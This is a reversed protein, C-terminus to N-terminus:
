DVLVGESSAERVAAADRHREGPVRAKKVSRRLLALLPLKAATAVANVPGVEVFIQTRSTKKASGRCRGLLV